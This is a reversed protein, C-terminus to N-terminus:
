TLFEDPALLADANVGLAACLGRIRLNDSWFWASQNWVFQDEASQSGLAGMVGSLNGSAVVRSMLTDKSVRWRPLYAANLEDLKRAIDKLTDHPWVGGDNEPDFVFKGQHIVLKGLQRTDGTVDWWVASRQIFSTSM